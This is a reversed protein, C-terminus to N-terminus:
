SAGPTAPLTPSEPTPSEPPASVFRERIWQATPRETRWLVFSLLPAAPLLVSGGILLVVGTTLVLVSLLALTSLPRTLLTLVTLRFLDVRRFRFESLITVARMLALLVAAALVLFFLSLGETGLSAGYAVNTALVGLVLLAPLGVVVSDAWTLRYGRLFRAAPVPDSDETRARWASSAAAVAPVVPLAAVLMLLVNEPEPALLTWILITPSCALVLMLGLILFWYLGETLVTFTSRVTRSAM